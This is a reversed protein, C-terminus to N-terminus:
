SLELVRGRDGALGAVELTLDLGAAIMGSTGRSTFIRQRRERRDQAAFHKVLGCAVEAIV